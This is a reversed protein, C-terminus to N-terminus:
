ETYCDHYTFESISAVGVLSYYTKDDGMWDVIRLEKTNFDLEVTGNQTTWYVVNSMECDIGVGLNASIRSVMWVDLQKKNNKM